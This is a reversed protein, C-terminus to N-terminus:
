RYRERRRRPSGERLAAGCYFERYKRGARRSKSFRKGPSERRGRPLNRGRPRKIRRRPSLSGRRPFLHPTKSFLKYSSRRLSRVEGYKKRRAHVLRASSDSTARLEVAIFTNNTADYPHMHSEPTALKGRRCSFLVCCTLLLIIFFFRASLPNPSKTDRTKELTFITLFIHKTIYFIISRGRIVSIM